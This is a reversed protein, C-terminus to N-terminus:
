NPRVRSYVGESVHLLTLYLFAFFSTFSSIPHPPFTPELQLVSIFRQFHLCISSRLTAFPFIFFYYPLPSSMYSPPALFHRPLKLWAFPNTFCLETNFLLRTQLHLSCLEYYDRFIGKELGLSVNYKGDILIDDLFHVRHCVM